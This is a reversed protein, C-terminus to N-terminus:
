SSKAKKKPMCGPGIRVKRAAARVLLFNFVKKTLDINFCHQGFYLVYLSPLSGDQFEVRRHRFSQSHQRGWFNEVHTFRRGRSKPLIKQPHSASGRLRDSYEFIFHAFTLFFVVLTFSRSGRRSFLRHRINGM